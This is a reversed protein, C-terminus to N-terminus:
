EMGNNPWPLGQRQAFEARWKSSVLIYMMFTFMRSFMRHRVTVTPVIQHSPTAKDVGPYIQGMMAPKIELSLHAGGM